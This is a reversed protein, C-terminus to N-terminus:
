DRDGRTKPKSFLGRFAGESADWMNNGLNGEATGALESNRLIDKIALGPIPINNYTCKDNDPNDQIRYKNTGNVKKQAITFCRGDETKIITVSKQSGSISDPDPLPVTVTGPSRIDAWEPQQFSFGNNGDGTMVSSARALISNSLGQFKRDDEMLKKAAQMIQSVKLNEDMLFSHNSKDEGHEYTLTLSNSSIRVTKKKSGENMVMSIATEYEKSSLSHVEANRISTITEKTLNKLDDALGLDKATSEESSDEIRSIMRLTEPFISELAKDDKTRITILTKRDSTQVDEYETRDENIDLRGDDSEAYLYSKRDFTKQEWALDTKRAGDARRLSEIRFATENKEGTNKRSLIEEEIGTHLLDGYDKKTKITENVSRMTINGDNYRITNEQM